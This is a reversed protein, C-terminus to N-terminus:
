EYRLAIMPDVKTARRAPIYCALLAAGALIASGGLFTVPDMPSVGYFVSRLVFSLGASGVLGIAMGIAVLRMGEWLMLGLIRPPQAGLATRIGIEQTRQTAAYAVVGYVGVSALMLALVGLFGVAAALFVMPRVWVAALDSLCRGNFRVASDLWPVERRLVPMIGYPNGKTRVWLESKQNTAPSLPSYLDGVYPQLEYQSRIERVGDKAVGVIEAEVNTESFKLRHGLPDGKPWFRRAFSESIIMVPAEAKAEEATFDRGRTIPIGLTAFYGPTVRSLALGAVRQAAKGDVLM